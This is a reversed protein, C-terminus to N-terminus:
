IYAKKYLTELRLTNKPLNQQRQTLWLIASLVRKQDQVCSLKSNVGLNVFEVHLGGCVDLGNGDLAGVNWTQKKSM